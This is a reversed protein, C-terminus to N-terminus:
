ERDVRLMLLSTNSSSSMRVIRGHNRVVVEEGDDVRGINEAIWQSPGRWEPVTMNLVMSLYLASFFFDAEGDESDNVLLTVSMLNDEPGAMELLANGYDFKLIHRPTGDALPSNSLSERGMDPHSFTRVMEDRSIGLGTTGTLGNSSTTAESSCAILVTMLLILLVSLPSCFPHISGSDIPGQNTTKETTRATTM